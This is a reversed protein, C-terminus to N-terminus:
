SVMVEYIIYFIDKYVRFPHSIRPKCGKRCLLDAFDWLSPLIPM